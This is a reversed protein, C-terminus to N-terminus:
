IETILILLLMTQHSQLNEVQILLHRLFSWKASAPRTLLNVTMNDTNTVLGLTGQETVTTNDSTHQFRYSATDDDIISINATQTGNESGAGSM